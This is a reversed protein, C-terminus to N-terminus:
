DLPNKIGKLSNIAVHTYIETTRSSNHGLLVQIQRLNTGNELLHTAFSHRLVHPSIKQRIKARRSAKDIIAAISRASYKGGNQGEFLYEKPQWKRYYQRLLPLLSESLLTYRDKRGKGQEVRILMRESDIDKVRLNILESRRLGSSYLLSVICRHKINNTNEIIALVQGKSIIKPLRQGKIPRDIQYFRDPMALVVEYYFKISNITQNIYSDSLKQQVLTQLYAQIEVETLAMLNDVERYHNIFREFCNVYARATNLSYRKLELKQLYEEPCKRYGEPVGRKRLDDVSLLPNHVNVPKNKFFYQCNVWAEGKFQRFIRSLNDKNNEIIVCGSEVHWKPDPLQKVLAQIVKDPYFQVGIYRKDAHYIHRLTVSKQRKM